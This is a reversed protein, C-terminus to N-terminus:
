SNGSPTALSIINEPVFSCISAALTSTLATMTCPGIIRALTSSSLWAAAAAAAM